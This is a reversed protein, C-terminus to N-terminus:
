VLKVKTGLLKELEAETRCVEAEHADALAKVYEAETLMGKAILLKVLAESTLLASDIGVRMHKPETLKPAYHTLMAIGSQMAHLAARYRERDTVDAM